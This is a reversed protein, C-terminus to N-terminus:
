KNFGNTEGHLFLIQKAFMLLQEQTADNKMSNARRSIIQINGKIYGKSSDIRDISANDSVFGQGQINTLPVLLYPCYEPIVIDDETINYELGKRKATSKAGKLLRWVTDERKHRSQISVLERKTQYRAKEIIRSCQRCEARHKKTDNRLRFETIPKTEKCKNCYKEHMSKM